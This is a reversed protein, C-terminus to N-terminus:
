LLLFLCENLALLLRLVAIYVAGCANAAEQFYVVFRVDNTVRASYVCVCMAFYYYYFLVCSWSHRSFLFYFLGSLLFILACRTATADVHRHRRCHRRCRRRNGRKLRINVPVSHSIFFFCVGLVVDFVRPLVLSRAFSRRAFLLLLLCFSFFVDKEQLKQKKNVEKKEPWEASYFSIFFSHTVYARRTRISSRIYIFTSSTKFKNARITRM